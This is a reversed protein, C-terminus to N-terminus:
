RLKWGREEAIINATRIIGAIADDEYRRDLVLVVRDVYETVRGSARTEERVVFEQSIRIGLIGSRPGGVLGGTASFSCRTNPCVFENLSTPHLPGRCVPCFKPGLREPQIRNVLYFGNECKQHQLPTLRITLFEALLAANVPEEFVLLVASQRIDPPLQQQHKLLNPTAAIM